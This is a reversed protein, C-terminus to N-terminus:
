FCPSYMFVDHSTTVSIAEFKSRITRQIVVYSILRTPRDILPPNSTGQQMSYVMRPLATMVKKSPNNNTSGATEATSPRAAGPQSSISKDDIDDCSNIVLSLHILNSRPTWEEPATSSNSITTDSPSKSKSRNSSFPM